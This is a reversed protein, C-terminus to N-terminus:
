FFSKRAASLVYSNKFTCCASWIISIINCHRYSKNCERAVFQLTKIGNYYVGHCEKGREREREEAWDGSGSKLQIATHNVVDRLASSNEAIIFKNEV